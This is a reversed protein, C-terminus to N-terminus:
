SYNTVRSRRIAHTADGGGEIQDSPCCMVAARALGSQKAGFSQDVAANHHSRYLFDHLTAAWQAAFIAVFEERASGRKGRSVGDRGPRQCRDDSVFIVVM